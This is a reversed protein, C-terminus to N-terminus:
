IIWIVFVRLESIDTTGRGKSLEIFCKAQLSKESLGVLLLIVKVIGM